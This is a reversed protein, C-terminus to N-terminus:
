VLWFQSAFWFPVGFNLGHERKLYPPSYVFIACCNAMWFEGFVSSFYGYQLALLSSVNVELDFIFLQQTIELPNSPTLLKDNACLFYKVSIAANTSLVTM